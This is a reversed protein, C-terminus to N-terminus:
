FFRCLIKQKALFTLIRQSRSNLNIQRVIPKPPLIIVTPKKLLQERARDLLIELRHGEEMVLPNHYAWVFQHNGQRSGDEQDLHINVQLGNDKPFVSAHFRPFRAEPAFPSRVFSVLEDVEKHPSFGFWRM